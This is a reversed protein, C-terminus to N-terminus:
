ILVKIDSVRNRSCHVVGSITLTILFSSFIWEVITKDNKEPAVTPSQMTSVKVAVEGPLTPDGTM